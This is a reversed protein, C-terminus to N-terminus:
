PKLRKFYYRVHNDTSYCEWGDEGLADLLESLARGKWTKEEIGAMEVRRLKDNFESEALVQLYEWKQM